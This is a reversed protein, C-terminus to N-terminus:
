FYNIYGFHIKSANRLDFKVDNRKGAAYSLNLLGAKTEFSLGVGASIFQNSFSSNIFNTKTFGVDTFGYLYSNIGVLYRYEATAVAYRNVYISEEDFGRLLRFGGIQFLENRFYQPTELWGGNVAMKLTSSKGVPFFHAYTSHIKLRYTKQKITDYLTKYNFSPDAPDKLNVIDNNPTIKRIGASMTIDFINGRRPNLRYNTKTLNYNVGFNGSNVDINSPLMRTIMVRNTDVGGSLLYSRENQFFITATQSASLIYQIGFTANLLLFTSDKKLLNFGFNLGFASNFIYPHTYGLTLRPSKPQLQQWNILINEGSGLTNKLDLHIDGTLQAKGTTINAPLYGVLVDIASSRKQVLYLNLVSGTGLMTLNWPQAEQVYPLEAIKQTVQKLKRTDYVSGDPINLYHQLFSNKVKASGLNRISDIKYLPGKTLSISAHLTENDIYVSDMKLEAFPYGNNEYYNLIREKFFQLGAFDMNKSFTKKNFGVAELMNVDLADTNLKSYALRPGLFLNARAFASDLMAVTDVSSAPFGKKLLVDPLTYLYSFALISDEFNTKLKLSQLISDGESVQYQVRFSSQPFIAQMNILLFVLVLTLRSCYYLIKLYQM